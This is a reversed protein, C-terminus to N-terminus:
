HHECGSSTHGCEGRSSFCISIYFISLIFFPFQKSLLGRHKLDLLSRQDVLYLADLIKDPKFMGSKRIEQLLDSQSILQLRIGDLLDKADESQVNNHKMWERIGHFIEIEPAFFSDRSILEALAMRSLSLFSDAKMVEPAHIDVFTTCADALEKLQYYSAVNYIICVNSVSLTAKLYTTIAQQLTGFDYKNALGLM